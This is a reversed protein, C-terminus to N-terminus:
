FPFAFIRQIDLAHKGLAGSRDPAKKRLDYRANDMQNKIVPILNSVPAVLIRADKGFAAGSVIQWFESTDM